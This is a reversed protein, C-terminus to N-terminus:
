NNYPVHKMVGEAKLTGYLAAHYVQKVDKLQFARPSRALLRTQKIGGAALKEIDEETIGYEQLTHPLGVDEMLNRIELVASQAFERDSKGNREIGLSSALITMKHLCSPLIYDLVYPLLVANSEGHSVKFLGGLPYALAHVGAVGANFFSLGALMSGWSMSSRAERNAGQWVATGISSAIKEIAELALTDTIVTANISLFSEIAHTLADIGSAATVRPPLSYTLEPDIIVADALLYDHTIVDKTEELSFVAIDTMEAGTGSTTPIMIKPLGRESLIKTGSLNLFDAITGENKALVSAAKAIDLCSGGGIGIVLDAGSNRLAKVAGDGISVQPEPQIETYCEIQIKNEELTQEIPSLVGLQILIPDAFIFVKSAHYENILHLLNQISGEGTVIKNPSRFTKVFSGGTRQFLFNSHCPENVMRETYDGATYEEIVKRWFSQAPKNREIQFIEWKRSYMQFVNNAIKKGLGSRRFKKM